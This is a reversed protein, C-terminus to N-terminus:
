WYASAYARFHICLELPESRCCDGKSKRTGHGASEDPKFGPGPATKDMAGPVIDKLAIDKSAITFFRLRACSTISPWKTWMLRCSTM